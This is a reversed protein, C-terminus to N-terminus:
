VDMTIVGIPELWTAMSQALFLACKCHVYNASRPGHVKLGKSETEKPVKVRFIRQMNTSMTLTKFPINISFLHM